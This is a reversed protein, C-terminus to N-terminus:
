MCSLLTLLPIIFATKYVERLDLQVVLKDKKENGSIRTCNNKFRESNNNPLNEKLNKM